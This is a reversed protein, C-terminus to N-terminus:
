NEIRTVRDYAMVILEDGNELKDCDGKKPNLFIRDDEKENKSPRRVGMLLIPSRQATATKAVLNQLEAFEKGLFDPPYDSVYYLENTDSTYTLLRKYINSMKTFNASQAIIGAAYDKSCVVEDAGAEILHRERDPHLAEAIVHIDKVTDHSTDSAQELHKVALAILATKADPDDTKPDALIIVSKADCAGLKLMNDHSTPDLRELHIQDMEDGDVGITKDLGVDDTTVVVIDRGPQSKLLQQIVRPANDNWNCIIFHNKRMKRKGKKLLASTVLRSSVFGVVSGFLLVGMVFLILQVLRAPATKPKEPYEGLIVITSNELEDYFTVDTSVKREQLYSYYTGGIFLSLMALAVTLWILTKGHRKGNIRM